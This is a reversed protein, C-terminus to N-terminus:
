EGTVPNEGKKRHVILFFDDLYGVFAPYGSAKMHRVIAQTIRDCAAPAGSNGFPMRLLALPRCSKKKDVPIHCQTKRTSGIIVNPNRTSGIIVNPNKTSMIIVNVKRTSMIIVNFNITSMIIVISMKTSVIVVVCISTSVVIVVSRCGVDKDVTSLRCLLSMRCMLSM